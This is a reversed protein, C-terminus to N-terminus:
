EGKRIRSLTTEIEALTYGHLKCTRLGAAAMTLAELLAARTALLSALQSPKLFNVGEGGIREAETDSVYPPAPTYPREDVNLNVALVEARHIKRAERSPVMPPLNNKTM